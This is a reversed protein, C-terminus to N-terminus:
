RLSRIRPQGPAKPGNLGRMEKPLIMAAYDNLAEWDRGEPTDLGCAPMLALYKGLAGEREDWTLDTITEPRASAKTAEVDEADDETAAISADVDIPTESTAADAEVQARVADPDYGAKYISAVPEATMAALQRRVVLKGLEVGIEADGPQGTRSRSIATRIAEGRLDLFEGVNPLRYVAVRNSPLLM